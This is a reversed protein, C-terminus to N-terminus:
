RRFTIQEITGRHRDCTKGGARCSIQMQAMGEARQEGSCLGSGGSDHAESDLIDVLRAAALYEDLCNELIKGPEAEVPRKGDAKLRPMEVFILLSEVTEM